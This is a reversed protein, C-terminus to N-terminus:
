SRLVSAAEVFPSINHEDEIVDANGCYHRLRVLVPNFLTADPYGIRVLMRLVDFKQAVLRVRRYRQCHPVIGMDCEPDLCECRVDLALFDKNRREPHTVKQLHNEHSLVIRDKLVHVIQFVFPKPVLAEM